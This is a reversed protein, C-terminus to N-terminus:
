PVLEIRRLQARGPPGIHDIKADLNSLTVSGDPTGHVAFALHKIDENLRPSVALRRELQHPCKQLLLADSWGGDHGVLESGVARRQAFKTDRPPVIYTAPVIVSCLIGMLWQSLAFSTHLSEPEGPDACRKREIWAAM